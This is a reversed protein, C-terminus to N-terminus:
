LNKLSLDTRNVDLTSEPLASLPVLCYQGQFIRNSTHEHQFRACSDFDGINLTNESLFGAQIKAWTDTFRVAWSESRELSEQFLRLDQECLNDNAASEKHVKHEKINLLKKFSLV